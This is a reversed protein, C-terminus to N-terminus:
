NPVCHCIQLPGVKEEDNGNEGGGSGTDSGTDALLIFQQDSVTHNVQPSVHEHQCNLAVQLVIYMKYYGNQCSIPHYELFNPEMGKQLFLALTVKMFM